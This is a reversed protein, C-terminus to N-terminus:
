ALSGGGAAAVPVEVDASAGKSHALEEADHKRKLKKKELKHVVGFGNFLQERFDDM